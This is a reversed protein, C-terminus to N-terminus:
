YMCTCIICLLTTFTIGGDGHQMVNVFSKTQKNAICNDDLMAFIEKDKSDWPIPQVDGITCVCKNCYYKHMRWTISLRQSIHM